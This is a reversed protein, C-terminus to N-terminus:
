IQSKRLLSGVLQGLWISTLPHHELAAILQISLFRIANLWKISNAGAVPQTNTVGILRKRRGTLWWAVFEDKSMDTDLVFTKARGPGVRTLTNPISLIPLPTLFSSDSGSDLIRQSGSPDPTRSQTENPFSFPLTDLPGRGKMLQLPIFILSYLQNFISTRQPDGTFLCVGSEPVSNMARSNDAASARSGASPPRPRAQCLNKGKMENLCEPVSIITVIEKYLPPLKSCNEPPVSTPRPRVQRGKGGARRVFGLLYAVM